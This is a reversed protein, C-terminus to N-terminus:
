STFEVTRERCCMASLVLSTRTKVKNIELTRSLVCRIQFMINGDETVFTSSLIKMIAAAVVTRCNQHLSLGCGDPCGTATAIIPAAFFYILQLGV